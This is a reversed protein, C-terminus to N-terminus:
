FYTLNIEIPLSGNEHIWERRLALSVLLLTKKEIKNMSM